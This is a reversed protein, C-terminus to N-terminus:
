LHNKQMWIQIFNLRKDIFTKDIWHGVDLGKNANNIIISTFLLHRIPVFIPISNIIGKAKPHKSIYGNLFAEKVKQEEKIGRIWWIFVALDYARWSYGLWDFDILSTKTGDFLSNMGHIDGHCIGYTQSDKKIQKLKQSLSITIKDLQILQQTTAITSNRIISAPELVLRDDGYEPLKLDGFSDTLNHFRAVFQGLLFSQEKTIERGAAQGKVFSFLAAYRLGEPANLEKIYKGSKALLPKSIELGKKALQAQVDLIAELYVSGSTYHEWVRFIYSNQNHELLYLDNLTQRYLRCRSANISYNKSIFDAIFDAAFTSNVIPFIKSM